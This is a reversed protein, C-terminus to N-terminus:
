LEVLDSIFASGFIKNESKMFQGEELIQRVPFTTFMLYETILCWKSRIDIDIDFYPSTSAESSNTLEHKIM